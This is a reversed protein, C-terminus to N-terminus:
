WRTYRYPNDAIFWREYSAKWGEETTSEDVQDSLYDPHYFGADPAASRLFIANAAGCMGGHICEDWNRVVIVNKGPKILAGPVRRGRPFLWSKSSGISIGNVFTEETEDVRGVSLFMDRGAMYAPVDIVKRFLTEGDTWKWEHGYSELYAPVSVKQWGETSEAGRAILQRAGDSVPQVSHWQRYLSEKLSVTKRADWEGALMYGQEPRQLLAMFAADQRFTAGLNALLQSLARTQRWRSFRFYHKADAPLYTPDVQAFIAVGGDAGILRGLMGDAAIEVGDGGTLVGAM